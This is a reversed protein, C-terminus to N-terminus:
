RSLAERKPQVPAEISRLQQRFDDRDVARLYANWNEFVEDARTYNGPSLRYFFDAQDVGQIGSSSPHPDHWLKGDLYIVAHPVGRASPGAVILLGESFSERFVDENPVAITVFGLGRPRIWERVQQMWVDDRLDPVYELPTSFYTALCARMCDDSERQMVKITPLNM